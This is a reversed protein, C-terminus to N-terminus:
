IIDVGQVYVFKFLKKKNSNLFNNFISKSKLPWFDYFLRKSENTSLDSFLALGRKIRSAYENLMQKIGLREIVPHSLKKFLKQKNKQYKQYSSALITQNKPQNLKKTQLVM